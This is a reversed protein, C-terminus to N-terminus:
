TRGLGNSGLVRRRHKNSSKLEGFKEDEDCKRLRSIVNQRRHLRVLTILGCDIWTLALCFCLRMPRPGASSNGEKRAGEKRM